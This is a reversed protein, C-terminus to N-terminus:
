QIIEAASLVSVPPWFPLAKASKMNVMFSFRHLTEVPIDGAKEGRLIASAKTAALRGVAYYPCVLGMTAGARLPEETATFTLIKEQAFFPLVVAAKAIVASDSPLYVLDPKAVALTSLAINLGEPSPKKMGDAAIRGEVFELGAKQVLAKMGEAQLRSNEDTPFYLIGIKRFKGAAQIAKFIAEPPALHSVGTFNRRPSTFDKVLGTAMPLAVINFVVPIDHVHKEPLNESHTGVLGKTIPTGFTYILDPRDRRVEATFADLRKIDGACDRITYEPTYGLDRLQDMFGKEAQTQGRYLLLTIRPKLNTTASFLPALLVLLLLNWRIANAFM